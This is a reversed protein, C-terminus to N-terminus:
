GKEVLQDYPLGEMISAGNRASDVATGIGALETGCVLVDPEAVVPLSKRYQVSTMRGEVAIPAM